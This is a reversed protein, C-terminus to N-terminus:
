RINKHTCESRTDQEQDGTIKSVHVYDLIKVHEITRYRSKVHLKMYGELLGLYAEIYAVVMGEERGSGNKLRRIGLWLGCLGGLGGAM